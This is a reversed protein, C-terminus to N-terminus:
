MQEEEEARNGQTAVLPPAVARPLHDYIQYKFRQMMELIINACTEGRREVGERTAFFKKILGIFFLGEM